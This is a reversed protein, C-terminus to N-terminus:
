ETPLYKEKLKQYIEFIKLTPYMALVCAEKENYNRSLLEQYILFEFRENNSIRRAIEEKSKRIDEELTKSDTERLGSKQEDYSNKLEIKAGGLSVGFYSSYAEELSNIEENNLDLEVALFYVGKFCDKCISLSKNHKELELSLSENLRKIPEKYKDDAVDELKSGLTHYYELQRTEQIIKETRDFVEELGM